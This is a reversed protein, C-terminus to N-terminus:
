SAECFVRLSAMTAPSLKLNPDKLTQVGVQAAHRGMYGTGASDGGPNLPYNQAFKNAVVKTHALTPLLEAQLM